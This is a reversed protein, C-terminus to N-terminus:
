GRPPKGQRLRKMLEDDSLKELGAGPAPAGRDGSRLKELAGSLAKREKTFDPKRLGMEELTGPLVDIVDVFGEIFTEFNGKFEAVSLNQDPDPLFRALDALEPVTRAAGLLQKKVDNTMAILDNAFAKREAFAPVGPLDSFRTSLGKLKGLMGVFSPDFREVTRALRQAALRTTQAASIFETPPTKPLNITMSQRTLDSLALLRDARAADEPKGSSQLQEIREVLTGPEKPEKPEAPVVERVQGTQPDRQFMRTDKGVTVKEDNLRKLATQSAEYLMVAREQKAEREWPKTEPTDPSLAIARASAL